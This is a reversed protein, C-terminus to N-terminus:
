SARKTKSTKKKGRDTSTPPKPEPEPSPPPPEPPRARESFFARELGEAPRGLLVDDITAVLKGVANALFAGAEALAEGLSVRAGIKRYREALAASYTPPESRLRSASLGLAPVVLAHLAALGVAINTSDTGVALLALGLVFLSGYALAKGAHKQAACAIAAILASACGVSTAAVLALPSMSVIVDLRALLYIGLSIAAGQVLSAAAWPAAEAAQAVYPFLPLAGSKAAVGFLLFLSALTVLGMSFAGEKARLADKLFLKGSADRMVMQDAMERFSLTSGVPAIRVEEGEAVVLREIWAVENGDGAITAGGGPVIAISYASAGIDKRVFPSVGFPTPNQQLQARDAVGTYVRAGPYSTFTLAGRKGARAAIARPDRAGRPEDDDDDDDADTDEVPLHGEAHVAVFRARYDSLYGQADPWSGGLGWFLLAFGLVLGVDGVGGFLFVRAGARLSGGAERGFGILLSAAITVIGWGALLVVAGGALLALSLGFALLSSAAIIRTAGNSAARITQVQVFVVAVLAAILFVAALPDFGLSFSEELSGIRLLGFSFDGLYRRSAELSALRAAHVLALGLAAITSLLGVRCAREPGLRRGFLAVVSAGVLLVLPLIGLPVLPAEVSILPGAQASM